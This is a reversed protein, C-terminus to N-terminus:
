VRIPALEPGFKLCPLDADYREVQDSLAGRSRTAVITSLRRSKLPHRRL